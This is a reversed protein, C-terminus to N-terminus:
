SLDKNPTWAQATRMPLEIRVRYLGDDIWTELSAELDYHLALRQRINDLAMRNGTSPVAGGKAPSLPNVISIRLRDGRKEFAIHLVGGEDAPEIGHYVANELLPQLMLPPIRTEAPMSEITWEVHLREGLRLRELELYQRCLAIEESLLTLDRPDRMLVRFLEALNELAAEARQPEHRILSLVANLSNFLFHPRIRATLAAVQAESVAPRRAKEALAFYWLLLAAAAAALTALRLVQATSAVESLGLRRWLGELFVVALAVGLAVASRALWLPLRQLMPNALALLGLAALLAPQLRFSQAAYRALGDDFSATQMFAAAMGLLNVGLLVRLMVGLNRFDPLSAPVPALPKESISAASM